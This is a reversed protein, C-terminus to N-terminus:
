NSKHVPTTEFSSPIATSLEASRARQNITRMDKLHSEGM